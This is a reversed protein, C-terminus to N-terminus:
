GHRARRIHDDDLVAEGQYQGFEILLERVIGRARHLRSRVTGVPVDLAEAVEAYSLEGWVFLLLTDRDHAQLRVLARAVAAEADIREDVREHDDLADRDPVMRAYAALQRREHRRHSRVLNAAIGYLWPRADQRDLDYRSRARFAEVFTTAALDDALETGVRSALYRHIARFHRDFIPEFHAPTALSAAIAAADGGRREM